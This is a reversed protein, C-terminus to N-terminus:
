SGGVVGGVLGCVEAGGRRAGRVLFVRGARDPRYRERRAAHARDGDRFPCGCGRDRNDYLGERQASSTVTETGIVRARPMPQWNDDAVSLVVMLLGDGWDRVGVISPLPEVERPLGRSRTWPRFWPADREIRAIRAGKPSWKDIRYRNTRAAWVNGDAATAVRRELAMRSEYSRDAPVGESGFSRTIRRSAEDYVHLPHGAREPEYTLAFFVDRGDPLSAWDGPMFPLMSTTIEDGRITTVRASRMDLVRLNEGGARLLVPSRYEGPGEGTRGIAARFVGDPFFRLLRGEPPFPVYYDGEDSRGIRFVYDTVIGPGDVDGLEAVASVELSCAACGVADPVVQVSDQAGLPGVLAGLAPVAALVLWPPLLKKM